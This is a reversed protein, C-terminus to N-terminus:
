NGLHESNVWQIRCVQYHIWRKIRLLADKSHSEKDWDPSSLPDWAPAIVAKIKQMISSGNASSQGQSSSAGDNAQSTEGEKQPFSDM